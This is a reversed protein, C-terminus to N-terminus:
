VNQQGVKQRRRRRVLEGLFIFFVGIPIISLGLGFPNFEDVIPAYQILPEVVFILLLGVISVAVGFWTIPTM